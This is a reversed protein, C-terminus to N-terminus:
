AQDILSILNSRLGPKETHPIAIGYQRELEELREKFKIGLKTCCLEANSWQSHIIIKADPVLARAIPVLVLGVQRRDDLDKFSKDDCGYQHMYQRIKSTNEEYLTAIPEIIVANRRIPKRMAQIAELIESAAEVNYPGHHTGDLNFGRQLSDLFYLMVGDRDQDFFLLNKNENENTM